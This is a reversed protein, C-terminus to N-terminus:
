ARATALFIVELPGNATALAFRTMSNPASESKRLAELILSMAEIWGPACARGAASM